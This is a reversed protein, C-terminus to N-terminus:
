PYKKKRKKKRKKKKSGSTDFREHVAIDQTPSIFWARKRDKVFRHIDKPEYDPADHDVHLPPSPSRSLLFSFPLSFPLADFLSTKWFLHLIFNTIIRSLSSLCLFFTNSTLTDKQMNSQIEVVLFSFGSAFGPPPVPRSEVLFHM